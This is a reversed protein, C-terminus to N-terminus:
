RTSDTKNDFNMLDYYSDANIRMGFNKLVVYTETHSVGHISHLRLAPTEKFLTLPAHCQKMMPSTFPVATQVSTTTCLMCLWLM